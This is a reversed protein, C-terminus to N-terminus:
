EWTWLYAGEMKTRKQQFFQRINASNQDLFITYSLLYKINYVLFSQTTIWGDLSANVFNLVVVREGVNFFKITEGMEGM